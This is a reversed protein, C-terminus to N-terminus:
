GASSRPTTTRSPTIEPVLQTYVVKDGADLVVVARGTIGALPGDVMLM